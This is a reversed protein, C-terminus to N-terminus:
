YYQFKCPWGTMEQGVSNIDDTPFSNVRLLYPLTIRAIAAFNEIPPPATKKPHAKSSTPPHESFGVGGGSTTSTVAIVM